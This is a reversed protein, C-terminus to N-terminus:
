STSLIVLFLRVSTITFITTTEDSIDKRRHEEMRFGLYGCHFCTINDPFNYSNKKGHVHAKMKDKDHYKM